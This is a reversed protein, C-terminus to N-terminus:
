QRILGFWGICCNLIFMFKDAQFTQQASAFETNVFKCVIILVTHRWICAGTALTQNVFFSNSCTAPTVYNNLKLNTTKKFCLVTQPFRFIDHRCTKRTRILHLKLKQARALLSLYYLWNVSSIHSTVTFWIGFMAACDTCNYGVKRTFGHLVELNKKSEQGAASLRYTVDPWLWPYKM